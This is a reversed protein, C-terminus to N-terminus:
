IKYLRHSFFSNLNDKKQFVYQPHAMNQNQNIKSGISKNTKSSMIKKLNSQVQVIVKLKIKLFSRNM